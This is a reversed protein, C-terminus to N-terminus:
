PQKAGLRAGCSDCVKPRSFFEGRVLSACSGCVRFQWLNGVTILAILFIDLYLLYRSYDTMVTLLLMTGGSLVALIAFLTQKIKAHKKGFLFWLSAAVLVVWMGLRFYWVFNSGM